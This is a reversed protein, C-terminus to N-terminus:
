KDSYFSLIQHEVIIEDKIDSAMLAKDNVYLNLDMILHQELIINYFM